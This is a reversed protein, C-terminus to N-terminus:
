PPGLDELFDREEAEYRDRDWVVDDIVGAAEGAAELEVLTEVVGPPFCDWTWEAPHVPDYFGDGIRVSGGCSWRGKMNPDLWLIRGYKVLVHHGGARLRAYLPHSVMWRMGESDESTLPHGHMVTIADIDIDTM